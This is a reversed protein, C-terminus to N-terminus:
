PFIGGKLHWGHDRKGSSKLVGYIALTQPQPGFSCAKCPRNALQTVEPPFAAGLLWLDGETFIRWLPVFKWVRMIECGQPLSPRWKGAVPLPSCDARGAADRLSNWRVSVRVAGGAGSFGPRLPSRPERPHWTGLPTWPRAAAEPIQGDSAPEKREAGAQESARARERGERARM